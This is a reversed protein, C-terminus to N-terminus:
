DWALNKSNWNAEPKIKDSMDLMENVLNLAKELSKYGETNIGHDIHNPYTVEWSNPVVFITELDLGRLKAESEIHSQLEAKNFHQTRAIAVLDLLDKVRSSPMGNHEEITACVKEAIQRTIPILQFDFCQLGAMEMRGLPAQRIAQFQQAMELVVELKIVLTEAGILAQFRIEIGSKNPQADLHGMQNEGIPRFTFFDSLDKAALRTLESVVEGLDSLTSSMDIDKTTRADVIRALLGTGGKLAFSSPDESFIRSLLREFVFERWKANFLNSDNGTQSKIRAKVASTFARPSKYILEM